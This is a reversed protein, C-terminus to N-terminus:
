SRVPIEMVNVACCERLPGDGDCSAMVKRLSKKIQQLSRIKAEIDEIKVSALAKVDGCTASPDIGIDLLERIERLSFGLAKTRRIFDLRAVAEPSYMRYGSSRRPPPDLLGKSEYFRITQVGVGAAKAVKGITMAGM